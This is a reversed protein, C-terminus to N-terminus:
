RMPLTMSPILNTSPSCLSILCSAAQNLPGLIRQIDSMWLMQCYRMNGSLQMQLSEKKNNIQISQIDISEMPLFNLRTLAKQIDSGSRADNILNILPLIQQLELANKDYGAIVSETGVIEKRLLDIKGRLSSIDSLNIMFYSLGILSFLLFFLISYSVAFRQVYLMKYKKPLLNEQKLIDSFIIAALPINFNQFEEEPLMVKEHSTLRIAPIVANSQDKKIASNLLVLREPNLRLQQQSYSVTMNINDIDADQVDKGRSPTIRIFRIQGNKVLFLSKDANSALVCLVTKYMKTDQSQVLHSVTFIDPYVAKITKGQRDFREVVNDIESNDVAFFFVEQAGKEEASKDALVTYFFSFSKLEPFRKRIETEVITDLYARKVPPAQVIDSYFKRFPYIVIINTMRNRKLFLDFEEDKLVITKQVIVKGKDQSAYVVKVLDDEFSIAVQSRLVKGKRGSTGLYNSIRWIYDTNKCNELIILIILHLKECNGGGHDQPGCDLMRICSNPTLIALINNKNQRRYESKLM